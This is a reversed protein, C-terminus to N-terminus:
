SEGATHCLETAKALLATEEPREAVAIARWGSGAAAAVRPGICALSLAARNLDLRACEAAFHRAAEASHLAIVAPRALMRALAEPISRPESAYVVREAMTAGEPLNLAIREAGALRLLRTGPPMRDLVFQLGGEGIEGLNFGAAAAAAATTKGVVHAPLVRYRELAAGGHRFVNASGVLLADFRSPDPADWAVPQVAFLPFGEAVLGMALAAAVSAACGPEPRIVALPIM